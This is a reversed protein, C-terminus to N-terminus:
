SLVTAWQYLMYSETMWVAGTKWCSEEVEKKWVFLAQQSQSEESKETQLLALYRM